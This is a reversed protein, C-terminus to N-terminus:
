EEHLPTPLILRKESSATDKGPKVVADDKAGDGRADLSIIISPPGTPQPDEEWLEDLAARFSLLGPGDSHARRQLDVSLPGEHEQSLKRLTIHRKTSSAQPLSMTSDYACRCTRCTPCRSTVTTHPPRVSSGSSTIAMPAFRASSPAGESEEREFYEAQALKPRTIISVVTLGYLKGIFIPAM